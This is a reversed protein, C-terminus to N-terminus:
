WDELLQIEHISWFFTRVAGLQGLRIARAGNDPLVIEIWPFAGDKTLGRAFFPLAAGRFVTREGGDDVVDVALERPYDGFSRVAMQLRVVRVARPRDLALEIWEDGSQ